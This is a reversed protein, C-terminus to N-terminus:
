SGYVGLERASVGQGEDGKDSQSTAAQASIEGVCRVSNISGSTGTM